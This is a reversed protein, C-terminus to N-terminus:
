IEMIYFFISNFSLSIDSAFKQFVDKQKSNINFNYTRTTNSEFCFLVNMYEKMDEGYLFNGM